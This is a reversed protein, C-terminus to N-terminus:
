NYCTSYLDVTALPAPAEDSTETRAVQIFKTKRLPLTSSEKKNTIDALGQTHIRQSNSKGNGKSNSNSRILDDLNKYIIKPKPESRSM